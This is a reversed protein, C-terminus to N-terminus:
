SMEHKSKETGTPSPHSRSGSNPFHSIGIPYNSIPPLLSFVGPVPCGLSIDPLHFGSHGPIDPLTLQCSGRDTTRQFLFFIPCSSPFFRTPQQEHSRRCSPRQQTRRANSSNSAIPLLRRRRWWWPITSTNVASRDKQDALSSLFCAVDCDAPKNSGTGSREIFAAGTSTRPLRPVHSGTM